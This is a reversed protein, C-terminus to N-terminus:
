DCEVLDANVACQLHFPNEIFSIFLAVQHDNGLANEFCLLLGVTLSLPLKEFVTNSDHLKLYIILTTINILYVLILVHM